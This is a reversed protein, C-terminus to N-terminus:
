VASAILFFNFIKCRAPLHTTGEADCYLGTFLFLTWVDDLSKGGGLWLWVVKWDQMERESCYVLFLNSPGLHPVM